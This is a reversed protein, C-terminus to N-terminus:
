NPLLDGGTIEHDAVPQGDRFLILNIHFFVTSSMHDNEPKFGTFCTPYLHEHNRKSIELHTKLLHASINLTGQYTFNKEVYLLEDTTSGRFADRTIMQGPEGDDRLECVVLRQLAIVGYTKNLNNTGVLWKEMFSSQIYDSITLLVNSDFVDEEATTNGRSHFTKTEGNYFMIRVDDLMAIYSFEPFSTQGKIYTALLWLSHSGHDAAVSCIFRGIHTNSGGLTRQEGSM